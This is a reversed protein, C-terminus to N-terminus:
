ALELGTLVLQLTNGGNDDVHATEGSHFGITAGKLLHVQHRALIGIERHSGETLREVLHADLGVHEVTPQVGQSHIGHGVIHACQHIFYLVGLSHVDGADEASQVVRSIDDGTDLPGLLTAHRWLGGETDGSRGDMCYLVVRLNGVLHNSSTCLLNAQLIHGSDSLWGHQTGQRLSDLGLVRIDDDLIMAVGPWAQRHGRDKLHTIVTGVDDIRGDLRQRPTLHMGVDDTHLRHQLVLAELHCVQIHIGIHLGARQCLLENVVPQAVEDIRGVLVHTRQEQTASQRAAHHSRHHGVQATDHRHDVFQTLLLALSHQRYVVHEHFEEVLHLIYPWAYTIRWQYCRERLIHLVDGQHVQQGDLLALATEHHHVIGHPTHDEALASLNRAGDIGFQHFQGLLLVTLKSIDISVGQQLVSQGVEALLHVLVAPVVSLVILFEEFQAHVRLLITGELTTLGLLLEKSVELLCLVSFQTAALLDRLLLDIGQLM